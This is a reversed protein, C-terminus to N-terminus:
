SSQTRAQADGHCTLDYHSLERRRQTETNEQTFLLSFLVEELVSYKNILNM